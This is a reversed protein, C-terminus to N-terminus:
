GAIMAGTALISYTKEAGHDGLKEAHVQHEGKHPGEGDAEPQAGDHDGDHHGGCGPDVQVTGEIVLTQDKWGAPFEFVAKDSRVMIKADGEALTVSCGSGCRSVATGKIRVTKGVMEDPKAILDALPTLETGDALEAGLATPTEEAAAAGDTAEGAAADTAAAEGGEPTEEGAGTDCAPLALSTLLLFLPALAIRTM